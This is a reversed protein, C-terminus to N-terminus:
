KNIPEYRICAPNNARVRLMGSSTRGSHYADCMSRPTENCTQYRVRHACSRCTRGGIAKRITDPITEEDTFMKLQKNGKLEM